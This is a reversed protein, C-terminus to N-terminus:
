NIQNVDYLSFLMENDNEDKVHLINFIHNIKDKFDDWTDYLVHLYCFVQQASGWNEILDGNFHVPVYAYLYSLEKIIEEGIIKKIKGPSVHLPMIAYNHDNETDNAVINFEDGVAKKILIEMQDIGTFYKVPYNTLSGGLRLGMENFIFDGNNNFAEIWAVGDTIGLSKFMEKANNDLTEKYKQIHKAPFTQLAMVSGGGNLLMSKKDSMTSFIINGNVFTYHIIVANYPIYEEILIQKSESFDLAHKYGKELEEENHCISFGRSGSSDTPKCIVPFKILTREDYSYEKAVPINNKICLDKFFRKNDCKAWQEQTCVEPLGLRRALKVAHEINFEHVGAWVGDIQMDRSKKELEDLDGTSILWSEDAFIKAHSQAAPLYDTVITYYGMQKAMLVTETSGIPKGGFILIKKQKKM